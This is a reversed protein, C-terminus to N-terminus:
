RGNQNETGAVRKYRRCLDKVERETCQNVDFFHGYDIRYRMQDDELKRNTFGAGRPTRIGTDLRVLDDCIACIRGAKRYAENGPRLGDDNQGSVPAPCLAALSLAFLPLLRLLINTRM